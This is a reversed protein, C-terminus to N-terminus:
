ELYIDSDRQANAESKEYMTSETGKLIKSLTRRRQHIGLVDSWKFAIETM